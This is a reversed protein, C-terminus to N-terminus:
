FFGGCEDSEQQDCACAASCFKEGDYEVYILGGGVERELPKDCLYCVEVEECMEM